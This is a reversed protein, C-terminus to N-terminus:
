SSSGQRERLAIYQLAAFGAVTLAQLVGWVAGATSPTLWLVLALFSLAAWALNTEIVARVPLAAPRPRAALLAVGAAYAMLVAGLVLLLGSDVGLLRGLPGSAVLYAVGNVGTVVADLALFRRLATQPETTRALAALQSASM